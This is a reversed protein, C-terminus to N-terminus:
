YKGFRWLYKRLIKWINESVPSPKLKEVINKGYIRETM